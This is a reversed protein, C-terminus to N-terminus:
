TLRPDPGYRNEDRPPVVILALFFIVLVFGIGDIWRGIRPRLAELNPILNTTEMGNAAGLALALLALGLFPGSWWGSHGTDHLRRVVLAPVPILVIATMILNAQAQGVQQTALLKSAIAAIWGSFIMFFAYETRRSRGSFVLTFGVARGILRFDTAIGRFRNRQATPEISM